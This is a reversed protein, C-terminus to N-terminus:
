NSPFVPQKWHGEASKDIVLSSSSLYDDYIDDLDSLLTKLDSCATHQTSLVNGSYELFSPGQKSSSQQLQQFQLSVAGQQQFSLAGIINDINDTKPIYEHDSINACDM